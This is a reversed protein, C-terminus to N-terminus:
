LPELKLVYGVGYVTHILKQSFDKDIKKRLLTIYVEIVNTGTDFRVDWIKEAIDVKTIVRERNRLLYELLAFEKATLEIRKDARKAQRTDLNLELDAYRLLQPPTININQPSRNLLARVRALLELFDFPKVLYDDAGADFGALKEQISGLATLMLVPTRVGAERLVKCFQVGNMGPVIIDTVILDYPTQESMRKGTNGDYCIDVEFGSEELGKRISQVTKIDDEILLIKM